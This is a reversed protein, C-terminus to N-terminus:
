APEVLRGARNAEGALVRAADLADIGVCRRNVFFYCTRCDRLSCRTEILAEDKLRRIAFRITRPPLETAAHLDAHTLPGQQVVAQFVRRASDPLAGLRVPDVHVAEAPFHLFAYEGM